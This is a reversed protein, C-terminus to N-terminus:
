ILKNEMVYRTIEVNNKLNTKELIRSRYTSVTKVSLFLDEAIQNIKKGSSIMIMIEYERDSLKEHLSKGSNDTLESALKEALNSSIYKRGSIIKKIATLLEEPASDKTIYGSAGSKLARIAYQEEPYMSLILVPLDPHDNKIQKLIDIGSRGPMSIDLLVLNIKNKKIKELLEQGNSAEDVVQISDNEELLQKIGKRVITHDDAIIIKIM